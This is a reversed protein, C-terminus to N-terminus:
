SLLRVPKIFYKSYYLLGMVCALQIAGLGAVYVERAKLFEIGFRFLLYGMMFLKFRSGNAITYKKGAQKIALWLLLLFFMEYLMLPHRNIGDGLNMGMFFNTPVGYVDEYVGMSLCGIRGILLALIMPYAFLDGSNTKVGIIKKILEVGFLGGLFGGVVSKNGYFHMWKNPAAQLQTISELGGVLRSGVIAGFIAGIIIWIRNDSNIADGQKKRLWVYYRFGVFFALFEFIAHLPIVSQGITFSVPFHM